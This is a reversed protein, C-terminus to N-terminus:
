CRPHSATAFPEIRSRKSLSTASSTRTTVQVHFSRTVCCTRRASWRSPALSRMELQALSTRWTRVQVASIDVGTLELTVGLGLASGVESHEPGLAGEKIDLTRKYLPSSPDLSQTKPNNWAEFQGPASVIAAPPQGSSQSRNLIVHAVARQGEPSQNAAEGAVTKVTADVDQPSLDLAM